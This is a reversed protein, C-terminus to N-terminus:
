ARDEGEWPFQIEKSRLQTRLKFRAPDYRYLLLGTFLLTGSLLLFLTAYSAIVFFSPSNAPRTADFRVNIPVSGCAPHSFRLDSKNIQEQDLLVPLRVPVKLIPTTINQKIQDLESERPTEPVQLYYAYLRPEFEQLKNVFDGWRDNKKERGLIIVIVKDPKEKARQLEQIMPYRTIIQNKWQEIHSNTWSIGQLSDDAPQWRFIIWLDANGPTFAPTRLEQAERGALLDENSCKLAQSTHNYIANAMASPQNETAFAVSAPAGCGCNCYFNAGGITTNDTFWSSINSLLM